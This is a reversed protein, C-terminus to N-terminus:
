RANEPIGGEPAAAGEEATIEVVPAISGAALMAPVVDSAKLVFRANAVWLINGYQNDARKDGNLDAAFESRQTPLTLLDVVYRRTTGSFPGVVDEDAEPPSVCGCGLAVSLLTFRLPRTM